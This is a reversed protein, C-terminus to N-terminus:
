GWEKRFLHLDKYSKRTTSDRFIKFTDVVMISGEFHLIVIRDCFDTDWIGIGWTPNPNEVGSSLLYFVTKGYNQVDNGANEYCDIYLDGQESATITLQSIGCTAPDVNLWTGLFDKWTPTAPASYGMLVTCLLVSLNVCSVFSKKM